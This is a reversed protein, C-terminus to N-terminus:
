SLYTDIIWRKLEKAYRGPPVWYPIDMLGASKGQARRINYLQYKRQTRKMKSKHKKYFDFYGSLQTKPTSIRGKEHEAHVVQLPEQVNKIPGFKECLRVWLDYDQAAALQEDFGGVELLRSRKALVQNGVQNSLLLDQLTIVSKKRWTVTRRAYQMQVDSTICAFSDDYEKVLKQIRDPHWEDDDDLGAIFTGTAAEFGCNRAAPAGLSVENKVYTIDCGPEFSRVVEETSDTSGDDVVVIELEAYSQGAVSQLARRLLDARNKTPIVASVLPTQDQM